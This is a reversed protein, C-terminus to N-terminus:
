FNEANKKSFPKESPNTKSALYNGMCNITTQCAKNLNLLVYMCEPQWYVVLLWLTQKQIQCKQSPITAKRLKWYGWYDM